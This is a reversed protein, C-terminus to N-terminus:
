RDRGTQVNNVENKNESLNLVNIRDLNIMVSSNKEFVISYESTKSMEELIRGVYESLISLIVFQIISFGSIICIISSWGGVVNPMFLKIILAFISIFFALCSTFLGLISIIRLPSLSNFVMLSLLYRIGYYLTKKPVKNEHNYNLTATKYGTKQIQMFFQHHFKGTDLVANVARRSLCRFTTSNRPLRYDIFRLLWGILPRALIYGLSQTTKAHGIVVDNGEKCMKVSENIISIPDNNIDFLIVFDGIANETGVLWISDSNINNSLQLYRICPVNSLCNEIEKQYKIQQSKQVVIIIEYDAYNEDLYEQLAQIKNITNKTDQNQLNTIVSVFSESKIM